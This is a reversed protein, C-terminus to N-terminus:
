NGNAARPLKTDADGRDLAVLADVIVSMRSGLSGKVLVVDGPKVAAAVVPALADTDAAHAGRREAPLAAALEASLLGATFVLDVKAALLDPALEAHLRAADDGLERMDGLVAIRRGGPAASAQGLVAFAARMAVPSANYSEDIMYFAGGALTIRKRQGRGKPATLKSFRAAAAGVDADLAKVAALVALSNTVWHLGAAGISYDLTEGLITSTVTSCTAHLSCDVLRAQADPHRGFGVIRTLGQAKARGVLHDYQANDRNLIAVGARPMGEFIEAKADAIEDVSGFFELHAAEVNTVIAIEPRVQRTLARIEGAHNMGLEFIGYATDRPMRALSLPVGWQNNLNGPTAYTPAQEELGLRLAEKTGTKGVSGTVAVFRAATRARAAAGLAELAAMTDDVVIIGAGDALAAPMRHVIAAAAGAALAKAVFEHGDHTPGQIAFFLDGPALTRSDISVGTIAHDAALADAAWRGGSAALVEGATWLPAPATSVSEQPSM